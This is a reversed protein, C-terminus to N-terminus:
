RDHVWRTADVHLSYILAKTVQEGDTDTESTATFTKTEGNITVTTSATIQTSQEATSTM